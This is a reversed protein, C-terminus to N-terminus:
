SQLSKLITQIQCLLPRQSVNGDLCSEALPALAQILRKGEDTHADQQLELFENILVGIARVELREAAEAWAEGTAWSAGFDLLWAHGSTADVKINHAYLDGHAVGIDQHLFTIATVVDTMANTIFKADYDRNPDDATWRDATVEVITPPLALDELPQGDPGNPILEMVVGSKQTKTRGANDTGPELLALCGVVHHPMGESGVGGYIALEDEARGDSTVGHITKIAVEYGQWTGAAVKGSAGQGLQQNDHLQVDDLSITPVRPELHPLGLAPNGSITLWTLKPLAWLETQDFNIYFHSTCM